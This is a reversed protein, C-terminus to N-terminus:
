NGYVQIYQTNSIEGERAADGLRRYFIRILKEFRNPIKRETFNVRLLLPTKPTKKDSVVIYSSM